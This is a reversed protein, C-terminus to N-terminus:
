RLAEEGRVQHSSTRSFHVSKAWVCQCGVVSLPPIIIILLSSTRDGNIPPVFIDGETDSCFYVTQIWNFQLVCFDITEFCRWTMSYRIRILKAMEMAFHTRTTGKSWCNVVTLNNSKAPGMGTVMEILLDYYGAETVDDDNKNRRVKRQNPWLDTGWLGLSMWSVLMWLM